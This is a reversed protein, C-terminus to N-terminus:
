SSQKTANSLINHMIDQFKRYNEELFIADPIPRGGLKIFAPSLGAPTKEMITELLPTISVASKLSIYAKDVPDAGGKYLSIFLKKEGGDNCGEPITISLTMDEDCLDEIKQSLRKMEGSKKALPGILHQLFCDTDIFGRTRTGSEFYLMDPKMYLTKSSIEEACVPCYPLVKEMMSRYKRNSATAKDFYKKRYMLLSKPEKKEELAELIEKTVSIFGKHAQTNRAHNIVPYVEFAINTTLSEVKPSKPLSGKMLNYGREASVSRIFQDMTISDQKFKVMGDIISPLLRVDPMHEGMEEFFDNMGKLNNLSPLDKVPVIVMDSALLASRTFYDLIPRTDIIVVGGLSSESFREILESYTDGRYNISGSSPIFNVGYQGVEVLDRLPIKDFIDKVSHKKRAKQLSFMKDITFHNDFSFATVPMDERMAKIYVALNTAITTKGVGGKECAVTIIKPFNMIQAEYYRRMSECTLLGCFLLKDTLRRLTRPMFFLDPFVPKLEKRYIM